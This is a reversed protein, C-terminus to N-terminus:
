PTNDKGTSELIATLQSKLKELESPRHADSALIKGNRVVLYRPISLLGDYIGLEKALFNQMEKGALIHYGGLHMKQIINKWKEKETMRDISLYVRAINNAHLFSDTAYNFQMEDLCPSCWTAWVDVYLLKNKPIAYRTLDFSTTSGASDVISIPVATYHKRASAVRKKTEKSKKYSSIIPIFVSNPYQRTFFPIEDKMFEEANVSLGNLIHTAFLYERLQSDKVPLLYAFEGTITLTRDSSQVITDPQSYINGTGLRQSRIYSFYLNPYFYGSLAYPLNPDHPSLLQFLQNMIGTRTEESMGLNKTSTGGIRRIAEALLTATISTKMLAFYGSDIESKKLLDRFPTLQRNIESSIFPAISDQRGSRIIKWVETFKDVPNYNYEYFYQHGKANSGNFLCTIKKTKAYSSFDLMFNISDGPQVILRVPHDSFLLTVFVPRSCPIDVKFADDKAIVTDQAEFSINNFRGNIPKRIHIANGQYDKLRGSIHCQGFSQDVICLILSLLFVYRM